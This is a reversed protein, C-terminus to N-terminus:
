SSDGSNDVFFQNYWICFNIVNGPIYPKKKLAERNIFPPIQLSDTFTTSFHERGEESHRLYKYISYMKYGIYTNVCKKLYKLCFARFKTKEHRLTAYVLDNTTPIRMIEPYANKLIKSYIGRIKMKPPVSLAFEVVDNDLLPYFCKARREILNNPMLSIANRRLNNAFFISVRGVKRDISKIEESISNLNHRIKKQIAEDFFEYIDRYDEGIENDLISILEEDWSSYKINRRTFYLGKLLGGAVGDFNIKKSPLKESLALIWSHMTTMGELLYLQKLYLGEDYLEVHSPDPVFHWPVELVASIKKALKVDRQHQVTTFTEFKVNTYYKLTSAICRSDYGGSLLVIAEDIDDTQRKIAKRIVEKGKNIFWEESHNYDIKIENYSWYRQIKNKGKKFILISANPLKYINKFLTKNGLIYKYAFVDAWGDWNIERELKPDQIVSKIESSFILKDDECYYYLPKMGYRDNVIVIQEEEGDYIVFNFVGNLSRVFGTGFEEFQHLIFEADSKQYQFKHGNKILRNREEKYDFIRGNMIICKSLDEDWIPQPECNLPELNLHGLGIHAKALCSTQFLSDSSCMSGCMRKILKEIASKDRNGDFVGCIKVM